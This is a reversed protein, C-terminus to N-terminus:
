SILAKKVTQATLMRIVNVTGLHCSECWCQGILIVEVIHDSV